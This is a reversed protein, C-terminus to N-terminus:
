VLQLIMVFYIIGEPPPIDPWIAPLEIMLADSEIESASSTKEEKKAEKAAKEKSEKSAKKKSAKKNKDEKSQKKEDVEKNDKEAEIDESQRLWRNVFFDFEQDTDKDKMKIQFYGYM